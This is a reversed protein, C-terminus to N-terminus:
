RTTSTVNTKMTEAESQVMEDSGGEGFSKECLTVAKGEGCYNKWRQGGDRHLCTLFIEM